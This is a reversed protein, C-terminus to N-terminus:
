DQPPNDRWAIVNILQATVSGATQAPATTGKTANNIVYYVWTTVQVNGAITWPIHVITSPEVVTVPVTSGVFGTGPYVGIRQTGPNYMIYNTYPFDSFATATQVGAAVSFNFKTYAQGATVTTETIYRDLVNIGSTNVPTVSPPTPLLPSYGAPYPTAQPVDDLSVLEYRHTLVKSM